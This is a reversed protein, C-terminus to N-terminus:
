VERLVNQRKSIRKSGEEKICFWGERYSSISSMHKWTKKSDLLTKNEDELFMDSHKRLTGGQLEVHSIIEKEECAKMAEEINM